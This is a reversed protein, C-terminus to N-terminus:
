ENPQYTSTSRQKVWAIAEGLTTAGSLRVDQHGSLLWFQGNPDRFGTEVDRYGFGTMRDLVTLSGIDTHLAWQRNTDFQDPVPELMSPDFHTDLTAGVWFPKGSEPHIQRKMTILKESTNNVRMCYGMIAMLGM